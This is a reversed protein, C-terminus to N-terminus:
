GGRGHTAQCMEFHRLSETGAIRLMFLVGLGSLTSYLDGRAHEIVDKVGCVYLKYARKYLRYRECFFLYFITRHM